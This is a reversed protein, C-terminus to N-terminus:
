GENRWGLLCHIFARSQPVGINADTSWTTRIKIPASKCSLSNCLQWDGCGCWCLPTVLCNVSFVPWSPIEPTGWYWSGLPIHATTCVAGGCPLDLTWYILLNMGLAHEGFNDLELVDGWTHRETTTRKKSITM